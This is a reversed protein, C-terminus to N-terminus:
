SNMFAFLEEESMEEVKNTSNTVPTQTINPSVTQRISEYLENDSSDLSKKMEMSEEEAARVIDDHGEYSIGAAIGYYISIDEFGLERRVDVLQGKIQNITKDKSVIAFQDGLIRYVSSGEFFKILREAVMAIVNDGSARGHETNIKKMNRIGVLSLVIHDKNENIFEKNFANANRAKTKSDFYALVSLEEIKAQAEEMMREYNASAKLLKDSETKIQSMENTLKEKENNASTLQDQLSQIKKRQEENGNKSSEMKQLIANKEQEMSIKLDEIEKNSSARFDDYEKNVANLEETLRVVNDESAKYQETLNNFSRETSALSNKCSDLEKKCSSYKEDLQKKENTLTNRENKLTNLQSKLSDLDKVQAVLSEKEAILNKNTTELIAISRVDSDHVETSHSKIDELDKELAAISDQCENLSNSKVTITSNLEDITRNLEDIQLVYNDSQGELTKYREYLDNYLSKQTNYEAELDKLRDSSYNLKDKYEGSEKQYDNKEQELLIVKKQVSAIEKLIASANDESKEEVAKPYSNFDKYSNNMTNATNGFGQMFSYFPALLSAMPNNPQQNLNATFEVPNTPFIDSHEETKYTNDFLLRFQNEGIVSKLLEIPINYIDNNVIINVYEEDMDYEAGLRLLDATTAALKGKIDNFESIMNPHFDKEMNQVKEIYRIFDSELYKYYPNTDTREM